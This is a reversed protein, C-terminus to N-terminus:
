ITNNPVKAARCILRSNGRMMGSGRMIAKHSNQVNKPRESSNGRMRRGFILESFSALIGYRSGVPNPTQHSPM